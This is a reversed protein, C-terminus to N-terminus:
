QITTQLHYGLKKLDKLAKQTRAPYQTIEFKDPVFVTTQEIDIKFHCSVTNLIKVIKKESIKKTKM